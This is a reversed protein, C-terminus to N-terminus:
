TVVQVLFNYKSSLRIEHAGHTHGCINMSGSYPIPKHSDKSSGACALNHMAAFEKEKM